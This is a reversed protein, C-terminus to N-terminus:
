EKHPVGSLLKFGFLHAKPAVKKVDDIVRPAVTFNIPIVDGPKYNHSPFKGALPELPILNAVAGGLVIADFQPALALVQQHYDHFGDHYVVKIKGDNCLIPEPMAAGKATLYTIEMGQNALKNALDVMLGGKFKNTIIKVADLKAHVPGGTILIKM